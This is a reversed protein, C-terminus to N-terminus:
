NLGAYTQYGSGINQVETFGVVPPLTSSSSYTTQSQSLVIRIDGLLAIQDSSLSGSYIHSRMVRARIYLYNGRFTFGKTGTDGGNSGTPAGSSLPYDLYKSAGDLSIPFWDTSSPSAALSAEVFVRGIFNTASLAVTYLSDPYGYWGDAKATGGTLDVSGQLSQLLVISAM